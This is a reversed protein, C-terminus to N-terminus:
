ERDWSCKKRKRREEEKKRRGKGEEEKEKKKREDEEEWNRRVAVIKESDYDITVVYPLHVVNDEDQENDEDIGDFSQYCHMELLTM